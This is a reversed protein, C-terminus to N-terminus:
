PMAKSMAIKGEADDTASEGVFRPWGELVYWVDNDFEEEITKQLDDTEIREYDTITQGLKSGYPRPYIVTFKAM